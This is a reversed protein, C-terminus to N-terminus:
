WERHPARLTIQLRGGVRAIAHLTETRLTVDEFNQPALGAQIGLDWTRKSAQDWCRRASKPLKEVVEVFEMATQDATRASSYSM